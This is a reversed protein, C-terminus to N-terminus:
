TRVSTVLPSASQHSLDSSDRPAISRLARFVESTFRIPIIAAPVIIDAQPIM